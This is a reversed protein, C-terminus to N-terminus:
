ILLDGHFSFAVILPPLMNPYLSNHFRAFFRLTLGSSELHANIAFLNKLMKNGCNVKQVTWLLNESLWKQNWIM